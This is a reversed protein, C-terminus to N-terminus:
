ELCNQLRPGLICDNSPISWSYSSCLLQWDMPIRSSHLSIPSQRDLATYLRDLMDSVRDADMKGSLATFGVVDSFFISVQELQQPRVKKGREIDRVVDASFFQSLWSEGGLRCSSSLPYRSPRAWAQSYVDEPQLLDFKGELERFTPRSAPRQSWCEEM